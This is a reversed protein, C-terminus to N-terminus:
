IMIKTVLARQFFLELNGQNDKLTFLIENRKKKVLLKGKKARAIHPATPDSPEGPGGKNVAVVRFEYQNGEILDLVKAKPTDGQVQACKEWVPSFLSHINKKYFFSFYWDKQFALFKLAQCNEWKFFAMIEDYHHLVKLTICIITAGGLYNIKEELIIAGIRRCRM